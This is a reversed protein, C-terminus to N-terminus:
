VSPSDLILTVPGDNTLSVQMSAGFVGAETKIGLMRCSHLFHEYVPEAVEPSAAGTFSPRRGKQCDGYLTFQSVVLVQGQIDILSTNMKGAEDPFLRLTLIKEALWDAHKPTDTPAIGLLILLGREVQGVVQNDVTVQAQSVRQVVARM